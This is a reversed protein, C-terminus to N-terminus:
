GNRFAREQMERKHELNYAKCEEETKLSRLKERYRDIENKTMLGSGYIEETVQKKVPQKYEEGEANSIAPVFLAAATILSLIENRKFM